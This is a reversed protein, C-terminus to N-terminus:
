FIRATHQNEIIRHSFTSKEHIFPALDAPVPVFGGRVTVKPILTRWLSSLGDHDRVECLIDSDSINKVVLPSEISVM